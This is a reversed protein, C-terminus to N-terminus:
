SIILMNISITRQFLITRINMGYEANTCITCSEIIPLIPMTYSDVYVLSQIIKEKQSRTLQIETKFAKLM